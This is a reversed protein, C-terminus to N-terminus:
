SRIISVHNGSVHQAVILLSIFFVFTVDLQNKKDVSFCALTETLIAHIKRRRRAKCFFFFKIVARTEINNFDRADRVHKRAQKRASRGLSKDTCINIYEIVVNYYQTLLSNANKIEPTLSSSIPLDHPVCSRSSLHTCIKPHPSFTSLFLCSPSWSTSPM